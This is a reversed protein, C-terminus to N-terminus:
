VFRYITYTYLISLGVNSANLHTGLQLVKDTFMDTQKVYSSFSIM